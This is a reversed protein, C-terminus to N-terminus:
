ITKTWRTSQDSSHNERLSFKTCGFAMTFRFNLFVAVSGVKNNRTTTPDHIKFFICFKDLYYEYPIYFLLM